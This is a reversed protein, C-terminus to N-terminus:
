SLLESLSVKAKLDIDTKQTAKGLEHEWLAQAARWDPKQKEVVYYTTITKGDITNEIFREEDALAMIAKSIEEDEVVMVPKLKETIFKDKVFKEIEVYRFVVYAGLAQSLTARSLADGVKLFGSRFEESFKEKSFNEAM